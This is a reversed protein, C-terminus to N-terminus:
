TNIIHENLFDLFKQQMKGLPIIKKLMQFRWTQGNSQFSWTSALSLGKNYRHEQMDAMSLEVKHIVKSSFFNLFLVILKEENLLLVAKSSYASFHQPTAYCVQMTPEQYPAALKNILKKNILFMMIVKRNVHNSECSPLSILSM